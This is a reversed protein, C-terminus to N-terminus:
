QFLELTRLYDEDLFPYKMQNIKNLDFVNTIFFDDNKAIDIEYNSFDKSREIFIYFCNFKFHLTCFMYKYPDGLNSSIQVCGYYSCYLRIMEVGNSIYEFYKLNNNCRPCKEEKNKIIIEKFINM